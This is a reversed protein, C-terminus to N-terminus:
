QVVEADFAQEDHPYTMNRQRRVADSDIYMHVRTNARDPYAAGAHVCGGEFVLVDGMELEIHTEPHILFRTGPEIAWLLGLPKLAARACADADFDTHWPQERCGARSHLVTVEGVCRGCPVLMQEKAWRTLRAAVRANRRVVRQLRLEDPNFIPAVQKVAHQASRLDADTPFLAARAVWYAM